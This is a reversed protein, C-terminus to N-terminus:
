FVWSSWCGVLGRMKGISVGTGARSNGEPYQSGFTDFGKRVGCSVLVAGLQWSAGQLPTSSGCPQGSSHGGLDALGVSM